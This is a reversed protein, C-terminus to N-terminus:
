WLNECRLNRENRYRKLEAYMSYNIKIIHIVDRPTLITRPVTITVSEPRAGRGKRPSCGVITSSSLNAIRELEKRLLPHSRFYEFPVFLVLLTKFV